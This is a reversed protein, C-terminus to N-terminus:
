PSEVLIDLRERAQIAEERILKAGSADTSMLRGSERVHDLGLIHGVEHALVRFNYVSTFEAVAVTRGGVFAVGNIGNLSHVLFVVVGRRKEAPLEELLFDPSYLFETIRRQEMELTAYSELELDIRAQDWIRSAKDVLPEIEERSKVRDKNSDAGIVSVVSLPLTKVEGNVLVPLEQPQASPPTSQFLTGQYIGSFYLLGTIIMLAVIAKGVSFLFHKGKSRPEQVPEDWGETPVQSDFDQPNFRISM